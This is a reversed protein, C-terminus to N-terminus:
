SAKKVKYRLERVGTLILLIGFGKKLLKTDLQLGVWSFVAAAICGCVMAPLLQKLNLQGKRRRIICAILASPLFFMLNIARATEPPLGLVATLWLVLLSGGGVGLASLFGLVTGLTLSFWVSTLM